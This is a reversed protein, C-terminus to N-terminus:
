TSTYVVYVEFKFNSNKHASWFIAYYKGPKFNFSTFSSYVSTQGKQVTNNSSEITEGKSSIIASYNTCFNGESIGTLSSVNKTVMFSVNAHFSDSSSLSINVSFIKVNPYGPPPPYKVPGTNTPKHINLSAYVFVVVVIVVVIIMITRDKKTIKM